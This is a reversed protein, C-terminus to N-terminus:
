PAETVKLTWRCTTTVELYYRGSRPVHYVDSGNDGQENVGPSKFDPTKDSDYVDVIFVGNQSPCDYSWRMDWGHASSSTFSESGNGNGSADLLV